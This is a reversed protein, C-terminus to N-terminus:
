GRAPVRKRAPFRRYLAHPTGHQDHDIKLHRGGQALYVKGKEIYMKDQAELVTLKSQNNLSEAMPGTFNRPMHLVIVIPLPFFDPIEPIVKLLAEPGGTSVGIVVIDFKRKAKPSYIISNLNKQMGNQGNASNSAGSNTSTSQDTNQLREKSAAKALQSFRKISHCRIKSILLRKLVAIKDDDGSGPGPKIIFDFAGTGLSEIVRVASQTDDKSVTIIIGLDPSLQLADQTFQVITQTKLSESAIVIGPQTQKIKDLGIKATPAAGIIEIDTFSELARRILDRFGVDEDVILTKIKSM